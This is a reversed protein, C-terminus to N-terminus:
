KKITEPYEIKSLYLAHGPVSAGAQQRDRSEIVSVLSSVDKEVLGIPLLTGVIARVMNRLFRDATITFILMNDRKQWSAQTIKCNYTKVDTNSRSFCKFDTHELLIASAKNLLDVDLVRNIQYATDSLFPNKNLTIWYEYTRSTAHFRAHADDKVQFLNYIAVDHPLFSNLKRILSLEDIPSELDFHLFYQKAHVGTDTRGCGVVKIAERLLTSLAKEIVEQVTIANPQLQWGHYNKGNYALELFYRM